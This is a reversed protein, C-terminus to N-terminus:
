VIVGGEVSKIIAAIDLILTVQGNGLITAGSINPINQLPDGLSKQVVEQYGLIDDVWIAVKQEVSQVVVVPFFKKEVIGRTPLGFLDNLKIVSLIHGGVLVAAEGEVRRIEEPSIRVVEAITDSPIVFTDDGAVVLLSETIAVTLPLKLIFTTGSGPISIVEIIGKFKSIKDRVVDLGVGRGSIDTVDNKTTFGPSFIFQYVQDTSMENLREASVLKNELARRKVGEIDIGRGDDSIEIVVHSGKQSAKLNIVAMEPKNVQAREEKSEIGHDIANRLIHMLPDRMEDVITKDLQTDVGELNLDINKEKEYALDRMARPFVQFLHMIPVMRLSMVETKLNSTLLNVSENIASFNKRLETFAQGEDMQVININNLHSMFDNLRMRSTFLEGSINMLRDLKDVGVRVSEKMISSINLPADKAEEEQFELPDQDEIKETEVSFSSVEEVSVDDEHCEVSLLPKDDKSEEAQKGFFEEDIQKCINEVYPFNIGKSNWTVKDSLLPEITDICKLLLDFHNKTLEVDGHMAGEFVDEMKSAVESIRKYGMMRAAGKITHAERMLFELLGRDNPNKELKLLGESIQQLHERVEIKFGDLFQSKDFPMEKEKRFKLNQFLIM